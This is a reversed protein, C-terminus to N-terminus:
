YETVLLKKLLGGIEVLITVNFLCSDRMCIFYSYCLSFLM